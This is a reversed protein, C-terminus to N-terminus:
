LIKPHRSIPGDYNLLLLVDFIGTFAFNQLDVM